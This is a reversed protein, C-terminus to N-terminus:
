RGTEDGTTEEGAAPPQYSIGFRALYEALPGLGVAARREDVNAEDGIPHVVHQGADTSWVIQTGYLQKKGERMLVRDEFLAFDRVPLEGGDRAQELIPQYRKQVEYEAHQIILFAALAATEGVRSIGPWGSAAVIDDLRALNKADLAAQKHWRGQQAGGDNARDRYRQDDELMGELEIRLAEDGTARSTKEAVATRAVTLVALIAVLWRRFAMM